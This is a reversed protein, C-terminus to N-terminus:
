KQDHSISLFESALDCRGGTVMEYYNPNGDDLVVIHPDEGDSKDRGVM